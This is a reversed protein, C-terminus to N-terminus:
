LLAATFRRRERERERERECFRRRVEERVMLGLPAFEYPDLYGDGDHDYYRFADMVGPPLEYDPAEGYGYYAQYEDLFFRANYALLALLPALSALAYWCWTKMM